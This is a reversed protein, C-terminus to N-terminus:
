FLNLILKALRYGLYAMGSAIFVVLVLEVPNEYWAL